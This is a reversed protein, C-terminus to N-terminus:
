LSSSPTNELIKIELTSPLTLTNVVDVQIKGLFRLKQEIALKLNTALPKFNEAQNLETNRELFLLVLIPQNNRTILSQSYSSLTSEKNRYSAFLGLLTDKIKKSVEDVLYPRVSSIVVIKQQEPTLQAKIEKLNENDSDAYFRLRSNEDTATVFKVEMLLLGKNSLAIFDVSKLGQYKIKTYFPQEDYKCVQWKNSFEFALEGTRTKETLITTM